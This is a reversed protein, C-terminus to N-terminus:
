AAEVRMVSQIWPHNHWCPPDIPLKTYERIYVERRSKDAEYPEVNVMAEVYHLWTQARRDDEETMIPPLSM